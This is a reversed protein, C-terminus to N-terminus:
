YTAANAQHNAHVPARPQNAYIGGQQNSLTAFWAAAALVALAIVLTPLSRLPIMM